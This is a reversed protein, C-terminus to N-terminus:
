EVVDSAMDAKCVCDAEAKDCEECCEAKPCEEGCCEKPEACEDCCGKVEACEDCCGETCEVAAKTDETQEEAAKQQGGCAVMAVAAFMAALTFFKKM